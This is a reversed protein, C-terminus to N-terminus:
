EGGEGVGRSGLCVGVRGVDILVRLASPVRILTVSMSIPNKVTGELSCNGFEALSLQSSFFFSLHLSLSISSLPQYIHSKLAIFVGSSVILLNLSSSPSIPVLSPLKNIHIHPFTAKFALNM